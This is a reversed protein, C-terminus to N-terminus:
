NGYDAGTHFVLYTRDEYLVKSANISNTTAKNIYSDQYKQDKGTIELIIIGSQTISGLAMLLTRTSIIDSLLVIYDPSFLPELKNALKLGIKTLENYLNRERSDSVSAGAILGVSKNHLLDNQKLISVIDEKFGSM